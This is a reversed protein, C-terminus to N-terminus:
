DVIEWRTVRPVDRPFAVWPYGRCVRTSTPVRPNGRTAVPFGVPHVAPFGVPRGAPLDGVPVRPIRPYKHTGVTCMPVRPNGCFIGRTGVPSGAPVRPVHRPYGRSFIDFDLTGPRHGCNETQEHITSDTIVPM